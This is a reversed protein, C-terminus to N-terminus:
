VKQVTDAASRMSLLLLLPSLLPLLPLLKQVRLLSVLQPLLLPPPQLPPLPPPEPPLPPPLLSNLRAPPQACLASGRVLSTVKCASAFCCTTHGHSATARELPTMTCNTSCSGANMRALKSSARLWLTSHLHHLRRTVAIQLPQAMPSNLHPQHLLVSCNYPTARAVREAGGLGAARPIHLM